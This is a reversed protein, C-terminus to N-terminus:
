QTFAPYPCIECAEVDCYTDAPVLEPTAPLGLESLAEAFEEQSSFHRDSQQDRLDVVFWFGSQEEGIAYDDVIALQTIDGAPWRVSSAEVDVEELETFQTGDRHEVFELKYTDNLIITECSVAETQKENYDSRWVMYVYLLAILGGGITLTMPLALPIQEEGEPTERNARKRSVLLSTGILFAGVSAVFVAVYCGVCVLFGPWYEMM